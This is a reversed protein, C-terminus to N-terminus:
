DELRELLQQAHRVSEKYWRFRVKEEREVSLKTPVGKSLMAQKAHQLILAVTVSINFSETFGSMPIHITQDALHVASTSVGTLETGFIFASKSSFDVEGIPASGADPTTAYIAYGQSKLTAICTESPNEGSYRHVDLWKAAGRVIRPNVEYLHQQEIIHVNQIGFCESTRIAASINQAYFVDELVITLADTRQALVEELKQQRSPTLFKSLYQTKEAISAM